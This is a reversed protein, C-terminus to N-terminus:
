GLLGSDILFQFAVDAPEQDNGDVEWNLASMTDGDLQQMLMNLIVAVRPDNEVISADIVPAVNYPPWFSQDDVLVVLDLASIQGDTGFCTTVDLDGEALGSYKLGPDFSLVDSFGFEGYADTLGPLGDPRDIFEATSGFVLGSSNAQLDSVTVIGLEDARAQTMALCYTNNFGSPELWDLGWEAMYATDVAMYIDGPTMSPDYEMELHTLFGTGTYEAYVDIEGAVLANHAASTSGLPTFSADYGYEQLLLAMLNGLVLQETFQKSSVDISVEAPAPLASPDPITDFVNDYFFEFAVDAPEQDNGDVEWNLASMTDGDLAAMVANLIVAIYPDQRILDANIVPAVPYPPWFGLDDELVVLDLASIQGDTGFCTTVDLDGEALGSYKLGPDFSLVDAFGFEGYSETLGPLGDPRDIFEATSGFVLGSSNTQLDSVTVIGLEDARSRTMALCYTNNFASADLWNLDWQQAYEQSVIQYIDEPSQSPDYELGLHTLYGTGTYEPYVDIEGAILAEHAAATSGLPTFTADYGYEQLALAMLNGLILQETFQKSGIRISLGSDQAEAPSTDALPVALASALLVFPLLLSLAFTLRKM